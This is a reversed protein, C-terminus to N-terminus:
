ITSFHLPITMLVAAKKDLNRGPYFLPLSQVVRIAEKDITESIGKLVVANIVKGNKNITFQIFVTGSIRADKPIEFHKSIYNTISKNTCKNVEHRSLTTDCTKFVPLISVNHVIQVASDQVSTDNEFTEYCTIGQADVSTNWVSGFVFLLVQISRM